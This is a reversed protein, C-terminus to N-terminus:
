TIQDSPQPPAPPVSAADRGAVQLRRPPAISQDGGSDRGGGAASPAIWIFADNTISRATYNPTPRKELRPGRAALFAPVTLTHALVSATVGGVRQHSQPLGEEHAPRDVLNMMAM